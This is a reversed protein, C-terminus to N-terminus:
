GVASALLLSDGGTDFAGAFGLYKISKKFRQPLQLVRRTM